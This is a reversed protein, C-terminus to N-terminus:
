KKKMFDSWQIYADAVAFPGDVEFIQVIYGEVDQNVKRIADWHATPVAIIIRDSDAKKLAEVAVLM